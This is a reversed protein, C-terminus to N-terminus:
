PEMGGSPEELIEATANVPGMGPWAGPYGLRVTVTRGAPASVSLYPVYTDPLHGAVAGLVESHSMGRAYGRAAEQASNHALLATGGLFILQLCLFVFGIALIIGGVFEVTTSGEEGRGPRLLGGLGRRRQAGRVAPPPPPPAGADTAGASLSLVTQTPNTLAAIARGAEVLVPVESGVVEATNVVPELRAVDDPVHVLLECGALRAAVAPQIEAKRSSRNLVLRVPTGRGLELREMTAILGRAARLAPVQPTAVVIIEDALDLAAAMSEGLQAGCDIIIRDYQYRLAQIIQRAAAENMDEALEPRDPAPFLEIGGRVPYAVESVERGGVESAIAALDIISHRVRIGCYSALDGARLDLDVLATRGQAACVQAASVALLSAGVGGKAGVVAVIRGMTRARATRESDVGTHLARSWSMASHLREAYQEVSPPLPLVARAGADMAASLLAADTRAALLCAPVLPQAVVLERIVALGQGDELREDVLVLAPAERDAELRAQAASGLVVPESLGEIESLVASVAGATDDDTTLLFTRAM